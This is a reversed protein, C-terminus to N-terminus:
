NEGGAAARFKGSQVQQVAAVYPATAPDNAPDDNGKGAEGDGETEPPPPDSLELAAIEDGAFEVRKVGEARLKKALEIADDVKV